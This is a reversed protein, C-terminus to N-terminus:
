FDMWMRHGYVMGYLDRTLNALLYGYGWYPPIFFKM